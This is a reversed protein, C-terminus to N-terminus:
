KENKRKKSIYLFFGLPYFSILNIWNNFFNGSTTLPWLVMFFGVLICIEADSFLIKKKFYKLFFNKILLYFLYIFLGFIFAFGVFGIEGLIQIYFNHPHTNCGNILLHEKNPTNEPPTIHLVAENGIYKEKFIIKEIKGNKDSFYDYIEDDDIFRYSFIKDNLNITDGVFIYFKIIDIDRLEKWERNFNLVTNDKVSRENEFYSVFREDSCLYRFSKPGMGMLKNEEFMKLSTKFMPMYYPLIESQGESGLVHFKLQKLYRDSVNPVFVVLFSVLIVTTFTLILRLYLYSKIQFIIIILGLSATLFSAREGTLLILTFTLLFIILNIITLKLNNKYFLMIGLFLPLLRSLFSGLVLDEKFFGSIRDARYKKFGLSNEEFIFQYFGDLVVIFITASLVLFVLKLNKENKALLDFVAFPFFIFRIYSFINLASEDFFNSFLLNFVLYIYFFLFFIFVKNKLFFFNKSKKCNYLFLLILFNIILEAILPGAVFAAPLLSLLLVPINNKLKLITM